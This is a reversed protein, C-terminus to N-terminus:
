LSFYVSLFTLIGGGLVFLHWVMHTYPVKKMLYFITGVSYTIGGALLLNFSVTNLGAKLAPFVSVVMWGMALYGLTTLYKYKGSIRVELLIGLIVIVWQIAFLIWAQKGEIITLLYPTYSGAILVYIAAHDLIKMVGKAKGVPVLHYAGSLAYSLILASGFISYSVVHVTEGNKVAHVVLLVLAAVSLGAGIFHTVYNGIEEGYTYERSM